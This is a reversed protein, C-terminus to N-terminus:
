DPTTSHGFSVAPQYTPNPAADLASRQNTSWTQRQTWLQGSTPLDPIASCRFSGESQSILRSPTVVQQESRSTEVQSCHLFFSAVESSLLVSTKREWSSSWRIGHSGGSWLHLFKLCLFPHAECCIAQCLNPCPCGATKMNLVLTVLLLAHGLWSILMYETFVWNPIRLHQAGKPQPSTARSSPHQTRCAASTYKIIQHSGRHLLHNTKRSEVQRASERHKDCGRRATARIRRDTHVSVTGLRPPLRVMAQLCLVATCVLDTRLSLM